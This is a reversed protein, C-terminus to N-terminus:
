PRAGEVTVSGARDHRFSEDREAEADARLKALARSATSKVTGVSIGLETATEGESLDVYHRLVVVARERATLTQLAAVLASRGAVDVAVDRSSPGSTPEPVEGVLHERRRRRWADTKANVMVRRTYGFPDDQRVRHWVAYTRVLTDQVLEEARHGDGTFLWALHHLQRESARVFTAFSEDDRKSM